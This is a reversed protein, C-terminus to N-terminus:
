VRLGIIIQKEKETPMLEFHWLDQLKQDTIPVFNQNWDGGWRFEHTIAGTHLLYKATRMVHGAFYCCHGVHESVKGDVWPGADIAWSEERIDTKTNINHKSEPYPKMSNGAAFALIQDGAGRVGWLVTNDFYTIVITFVKIIDRHCTFLKKESKASYKPM